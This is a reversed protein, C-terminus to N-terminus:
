FFAILLIATISLAIGVYNINNLKERFAIVSVISSVAVISINNVPFFVSATMIGTELSKMVLYMCYFNPIGLFLGTILSKTHPVIKGTIALIIFAISGLVAAVLFATSLIYENSLKPNVYNAQLYNIVTDISGCGVFLILPLLYQWKHQIHLQNKKKKISVMTVACLALIIGIVKSATIIDHYFIIAATVPIVVSMKNSVSAVTIGFTNTTLAVLYFLCVFLLGLFVTLPLWSQVVIFGIDFPQPAIYFGLFTAVFYNSMIAQFSDIGFRPFLRFVFLLFANVLICLIIHVM